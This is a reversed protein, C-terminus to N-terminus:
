GQRKTGSRVTERLALADKLLTRVMEDFKLGERNALAAIQKAMSGGIRVQATKKEM